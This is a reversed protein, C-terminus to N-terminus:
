SGDRAGALAVEQRRRDEGLKVVTASVEDGRAALYEWGADAPGEALLALRKRACSAVYTDGAAKAAVVVRELEDRLSM